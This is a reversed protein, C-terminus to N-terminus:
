RLNQMQICKQFRYLPDRDADYTANHEIQGTQPNYAADFRQSPEDNQLRVQAVCFRVANNIDDVDAAMAISSRCILFTLGICAVANKLM